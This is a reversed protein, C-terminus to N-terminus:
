EPRHWICEPDHWKVEGMASAARVAPGSHALVAFHRDSLDRAAIVREERAPPQYSPDPEKFRLYVIVDALAPNLVTRWTGDLNAYVFGVDTVVLGDRNLCHWICMGDHWCPKPEARMLAESLEPTSPRQRAMAVGPVCALDRAAPDESVPEEDPHFGPPEVGGWHVILTQIAAPDLILEYANGAYQYGITIRHVRIPFAM